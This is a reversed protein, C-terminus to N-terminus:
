QAKEKGKGPEKKPTNNPTPALSPASVKEQTPTASAALRAAIRSDIYSCLYDIYRVGSTKSLEKLSLLSADAHWRGFVSALPVQFATLIRSTCLLKPSV